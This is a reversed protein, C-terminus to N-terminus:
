GYVAVSGILAAIFMIVGGAILGFLWGENYDSKKWSLGLM